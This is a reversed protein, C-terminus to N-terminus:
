SDGGKLKQIENELMRIQKVKSLAFYRWQQITMGDLTSLSSQLQKAELVEEEDPQIYSYTQKISKHNMAKSIVKTSVGFRNLQTGFTARLRHPFFKDLNLKDAINKFYRNIKRNYNDRTKKLNAFITSQIEKILSKEKKTLLFKQIQNRKKPTFNAYDGGDYSILVQSIENRRWGNILILNVIPDNLQYIKEREFPSLPEWKNNM